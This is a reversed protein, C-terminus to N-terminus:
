TSYLTLVLTVARVLPLQEMKKKPEQTFLSYDTVCSKKIPTKNNRQLKYVVVFYVVSIKM